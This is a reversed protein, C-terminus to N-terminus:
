PGLAFYISLSSLTHCTHVRGPGWRCGDYRALVTLVRPIAASLVDAQKQHGQSHRSATHEAAQCVHLGGCSAHSRWCSPQSSLSNPNKFSSCLVGCDRHLPIHLPFTAKAGASAWSEVSQRVQAALKSWIASIKKILLSRSFSTM